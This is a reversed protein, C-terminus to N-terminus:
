LLIEGMDHYQHGLEELKKEAQSHTGIWILSYNFKQSYAPMGSQTNLLYGECIHKIYFRKKEM